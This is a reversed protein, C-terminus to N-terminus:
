VQKKIKVAAGCLSLIRYNQQEAARARAQQSIGTAPAMWDGFGSRALRNGFATNKYYM